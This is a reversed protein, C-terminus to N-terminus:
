GGKVENTINVIETVSSQELSSCYRQLEEVRRQLLQIEQQYRGVIATKECEFSALLLEPNDSARPFRTPIKLHPAELMLEELKKNFEQLRSQIASVYQRGHGKPSGGMRAREGEFKLQYERARYNRMFGDFNKGGFGEYEALKKKLHEIEQQYVFDDEM